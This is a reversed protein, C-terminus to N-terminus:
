ESAENASAHNRSADSRRKSDLHTQLILTAALADRKEKRRQRSLGGEILVREAEASTLREDVLHIPLGLYGLSAKITLTIQAQPGISGDMNFPMGLAIEIVRETHVLQSLFDLDQDDNQLRYVGNRGALTQTADSLAWGCRVEGWDLALVKGEMM